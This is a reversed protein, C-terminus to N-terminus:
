SQAAVARADRVRIEADLEAEYTTAALIEDAARCLDPELYGCLVDRLLARLHQEVERVVARPSQLALGSDLGGGHIVERELTFALRVGVEAEPRDVAPACLAALRRVITQELGDGADGVLARLGLLYDSLAEVELGRECGMEFRDLARGVTADHRSLTLVELLDRLEQEDTARLEWSEARARASVGLAVPHWAGEGARAWALPGLATGGAGCLRLATLARRFRTRAADVPLRAGPRVERELLCFVDLPDSEPEDADGDDVAATREPARVAGEIAAPPSGAASRRVLFLGDGLDVRASAIRVGHLPAVVTAEVAADALTADIEAHLRRFREDPLDFSTAEDFLREMLDRLAVDPDSGPLGRHRLYPGAAHAGLLRVARRYPDLERAIAWREAVFAATLPRYRYLVPGGREGGGAELVEFPLDAGSELERKVLMGVERGLDRLADCLARNHM